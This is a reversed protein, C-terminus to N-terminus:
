ANESETAVPKRSVTETAYCTAPEVTADQAPRLVDSWAFIQKAVAFMMAERGKEISVGSQLTLSEFLAKQENDTM